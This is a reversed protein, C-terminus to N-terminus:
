AAFGLDQLLARAANCYHTARVAPSDTRAREIQQVELAFPVDRLDLARLMEALPLEGDGPALRTTRAEHALADLDAPAASPADCLQVYCIRSRDITALQAPSQGARQHHLVDVIVEADPVDASFALADAVTHVATFAMAEFAVRLGHPRVAEALAALRAAGQELDPDECTTLLWSAGLIVGAEITRDIDASYGHPQIRVVELDLVALGLADARRRLARLDAFSTDDFLRVGFAGYGTTAALDALDRVPCDLVTGASLSLLPSSM